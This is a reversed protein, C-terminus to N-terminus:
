ANKMVIEEVIDATDECLDCCREMQSFVETWAMAEIPDAGAKYLGRVADLYLKDGAEELRNVEIISAHLAKSKKFNPFEKLVDRLGECCRAVIDCFTLAEPRVAKVRYMHMKLLVDEVADTIDDIQRIVQIIDEREIPTIFEKSLKEMVAHKKKDAMHEIRHLEELRQEMESERFDRLVNRLEAAAKCSFDILELFMKFYDNGRMYAM